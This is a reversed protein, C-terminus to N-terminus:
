GITKRINNVNKIRQLKQRYVYFREVYEKKFPLFISKCLVDKDRIYFLLKRILKFEIQYYFSTRNNFMATVTGCPNLVRHIENVIRGPNPSHHMVGFSYVREFSADSFPLEKSKARKIVGKQGFM